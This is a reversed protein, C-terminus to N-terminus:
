VDGNSGTEFQVLTGDATTFRFSSVVKELKTVGPTPIGQESYVGAVLELYSKSIARSEIAWTRTCPTQPPGASRKCEFNLFYHWNSTFPKNKENVRTFTLGGNGDSGISLDTSEDRYQGKVMDVGGPSAVATEPPLIQPQTQALAPGSLLAALALALGRM